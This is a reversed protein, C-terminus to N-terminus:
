RGARLVIEELRELDEDSLKSVDVASTEIPGGNKGTHEVKDVFMGLHKGLLELAKNAVNGEYKWEGSEEWVGDVMELVPKKQLARDVNEVLRDLVWAIDIKVKEAAKDKLEQVRDSISQNAKLTAANGRNPKYGAEQYAEDATKGKAISQAFLEHRQNKLAAM